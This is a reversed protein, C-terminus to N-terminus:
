SVKKPRRKKKKLTLFAAALGVATLLWFLGTLFELHYTQIFYKYSYGTLNEKWLYYTKGNQQTVHPVMVKNFRSLIYLVLNGSLGAACVVFAAVRKLIVSIDPAAPGSAPTNLSDEYDDNLLYDASVGFLRSLQLLNSADPQSSGVEWRSVAQRSVNLKEALEEQSLNRKKRLSLIKESLNM